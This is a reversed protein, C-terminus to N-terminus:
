NDNKSLFTEVDSVFKLIGKEIKDTLKDLDNFHSLKM